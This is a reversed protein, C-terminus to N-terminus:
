SLAIKELKEKRAEWDPMVLALLNFFDKSHNLYKFHCLEHMIVYDICHSPAKILDLNLVIKRNPTCSGWRKALKRIQIIPMEHIDYKRIKYYCFELRQQFKLKANNYLWGNLLKKSLETDAKNSTFIKLYSSELKVINEISDIFKLRYQKGLYRLSEGSIYQREKLDPKFNLFYRKQKIIWYAKNKVHDLIEKINKNVPAKVIVSFDPEVIIQLTKRPTLELLFDIEQSGYSITYIAKEIATIM